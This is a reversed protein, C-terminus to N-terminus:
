SDYGIVTHMEEPPPVPAILEPIVPNEVGNAKGFSRYSEVLRERTRAGLCAWCDIREFDPYYVQVYPRLFPALVLYLYSDQDQYLFPFYLSPTGRGTGDNYSPTQSGLYRGVFGTRARREGSVFVRYYRWRQQQQQSMIHGVRVCGPPSALLLLLLM